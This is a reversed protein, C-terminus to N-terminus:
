AVDLVNQMVAGVIKGASFLANVRFGEFVGIRLVGLFEDFKDPRALDGDPAAIGFRPLVDQAARIGQLATGIDSKEKIQLMLRLFCLLFLIFMQVTLVQKKGNKSQM